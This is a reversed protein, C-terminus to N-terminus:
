ACFCLKTVIKRGAFLRGHMAQRCSHAGAATEFCVMAWGQQARQGVRCDVVKGFRMCEKEIDAWMEALFRDEDQWGEEFDELLLNCLGHLKVVTGMEAYDDLTQKTMRATAFDMRSNADSEDQQPERDSRVRQKPAPKVVRAISSCSGKVHAHTHSAIQQHDEQEPQPPRGCRVLQQPQKPEPQTPQPRAKKM